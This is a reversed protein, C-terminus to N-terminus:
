GSVTIMNAKDKAGDLYCSNYFVIYLNRSNKDLWFLVGVAIM